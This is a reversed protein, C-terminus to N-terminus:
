LSLLKSVTLGVMGSPATFPTVSHNQSLWTALAAPTIRLKPYASSHLTWEGSSQREHFLDYVHVHTSGFHLVCTLIRDVDSRVPIIRVQGTDEPRAYDRFTLVLRGGPALRALAAELTAHLTAEDPLHCLTDGMCLILDWTPAPPTHALCSVWEAAECRVPLGQIHANLEDRLPACSELATVAWGARALVLTHQGRGAGLDLARGSPALAVGAAALEAAARACLAAFDGTMWAYRPGLHDEYHDYSPRLPM